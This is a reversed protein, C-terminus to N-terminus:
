KDAVPRHILAPLRLHRFIAACRQEAGPLLRNAAGQIPGLLFLLFKLPRSLFFLSPSLMCEANRPSNRPVIIMINSPLPTTAFTTNRCVFPSFDPHITMVVPQHKATMAPTNVANAM